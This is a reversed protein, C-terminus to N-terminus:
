DSHPPCLVCNATAEEKPVTDGSIAGKAQASATNSFYVTGPEDGNGGITDPYYTQEFVVTEGFAMSGTCKAVASGSAATCTLNDGGSVKVLSQVESDEIVVDTLAEQGDNTVTIVNDVVVVVKNDVVTLRVGGDEPDCEKTISLNPTLDLLCTADGTETGLLATKASNAYFNLTVTDSFSTQSVPTTLPYNGEYRAQQGAALTFKATSGLVLDAPTADTGDCKGIVGTTDFCVATFAAGTQNDSLEVYISQGGTNSAIGTFDVSAETGATNITATCAKTVSAGCVPFADQVFDKLQATQSSSSRTEALFSAFCPTSGLLRTVNIGGEFFSEYPLGTGSKPTYPWPPSAQQELNSIACALKGGALDCEADAVRILLDLPSQVNKPPNNSEDPDWNKDGDIDNPDWEYVKIIPVAGSAQPYEVIVFVDGPTTATKAVHAGSFNGDSTPAVDDQFFWFGAFADGNNAYRDLGFYVIMDGQEHIPDGVAGPDSCLVPAGAANLCVDAAVNYAAAYANTIDDKDPVAGDTHKWQTVDNVDKSGGQFFISAPAPDAQIGTFTILNAKTAAGSYLGGWDDGNGAVDPINGDLEFLGPPNGDVAYVPVSMATSAAIMAGLLCSPLRKFLPSRMESRGCWGVADPPPYPAQLWASMM